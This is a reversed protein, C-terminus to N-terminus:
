RHSAPSGFYLSPDVSFVCRSDPFETLTYLGEKASAPSWVLSGMTLDECGYAWVQQVDPQGGTPASVYLAGVSGVQSSCSLAWQQTSPNWFGGQMKTEGGVISCNHPSLVIGREDVALRGSTQNVVYQFLRGQTSGSDYEGSSLVPPATSTPPSYSVWSVRPDGSVNLYRNVQPVIYRYNFAQYSGDSQLGISDSLGTSVELCAALDFVRYGAWTDAVYLYRGVSAIGGAHIPVARFDATPATGTPPSDNEYLEVLLLHRYQLTTGEVLSVRVGKNPDDEKSYWSALLYEGDSVGDPQHRVTVGQPYWLATSADGDNWELGGTVGKIGEVLPSDASLPSGARNFVIDALRVTPLGLGDILANNATWEDADVFTPMPGAEGCDGRGSRVLLVMVVGVLVEMNRM